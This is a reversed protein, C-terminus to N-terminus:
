TTLLAEPQKTDCTESLSVREKALIRLWCARTIASVDTGRRLAITYMANVMDEPARVGITTDMKGPYLRPRGPKM